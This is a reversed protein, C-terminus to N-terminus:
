SDAAPLDTWRQEITPVAEFERELRDVADAVRERSVAVATDADM